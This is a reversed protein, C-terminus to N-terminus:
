RWQEEMGPRTGEPAGTHSNGHLEFEGCESISVVLFAKEVGLSLRHNSLDPWGLISNELLM